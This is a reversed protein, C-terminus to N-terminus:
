LFSQIVSVASELKNCDINRQNLTNWPSNATITKKVDGLMYDSYNM